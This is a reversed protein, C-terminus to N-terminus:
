RASCGPTVAGYRWAKAGKELLLRVLEDRGEGAALMLLTQGNAAALDPDAGDKLMRIAAAIQGSTIANALTDYTYRDTRPKSAEPLPVDALPINLERAIRPYIQQWVGPPVLEQLQHPHEGYRLELFFCLDPVKRAARLLFEQRTPANALPLSRTDPRNVARLTLTEPTAHEVQFLGNGPIEFPIGRLADTHFLITFAAEAEKRAEEAQAIGRRLAAAIHRESELADAPCADALNGAATLERQYPQWDDTRTGRGLAVWLQQQQLGAQQQFAAAREQLQTAHDTPVPDDTKAPAPTSRGAYLYWGIGSAVAILLVTLIRGPWKKKRVPNM